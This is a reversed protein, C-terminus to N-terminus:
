AESRLEAIYASLASVLAMAREQACSSEGLGMNEQEIQVLYDCVQDDPEAQWLRSAAQLLYADYEDAYDEDPPALGIPDWHTWGM